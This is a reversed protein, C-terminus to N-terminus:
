TKCLNKKETFHGEFFLNINFDELFYTKNGQSALEKLAIKFDGIFISQGPPTYIIGLMVPKFKPVLM